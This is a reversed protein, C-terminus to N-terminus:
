VFGGCRTPSGATQGVAPSGVQLQAEVFPDRSQVVGELAVGRGIYGNTGIEEAPSTETTVAEQRAYGPTNANSINHSATAVQARFVGLGAGANMMVSVLDM